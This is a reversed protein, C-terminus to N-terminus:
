ASRRYSATPLIRIFGYPRTKPLSRMSNAVSGALPQPRGTSITQTTSTPDLSESCGASRPRGTLNTSATNSCTTTAKKGDDVDITVREVHEIEDPIADLETPFELWQALNGEAAWEISTDAPLLDLLGREKLLDITTWRTALDNAFPLVHEEDLGRGSELADILPGIRRLREASLKRNQGTVKVLRYVIFGVVLVVPIAIVILIWFWLSM